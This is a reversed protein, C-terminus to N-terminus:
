RMKVSCVDRLHMRQSSHSHKARQISMGPKCYTDADTCDAKETCEDGISGGGGGDSGCGCSGGECVVNTPCDSNQTWGSHDCDGVERCTGVEECVLGGQNCYEGDGCDEKEACTGGNAPAGNADEEPCVCMGSDGLSDVDDVCTLAGDCEVGADQLDAACDAVVLCTGVKECKGNAAFLPSIVM